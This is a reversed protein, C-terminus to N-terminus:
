RKKFFKNYWKLKQKSAEFLYTERKEVYKCPIKSFSNIGNEILKNYYDKYLQQIETYNEFTYRDYYKSMKNPETIRYSSFHYFYLPTSDAMKVNGDEFSVNREHLNWPAVNLGKNRLIKVKEFFIPVLNIWLQDVFLGENVKDFGLNLTRNEWWDLFGDKVSANRHVGIFGLNYLGYNLFLQETPLFKDIAIPSLVHPTILIDADLFYEELIELSNYIVIDPDIYSIITGETYEKFIYKFYSAKVSTNFEILNFKKWLSDFEIIGIDAVPIIKCNLFEDYNIKENFEDVLGIIFFYNPNHKLLSQGLTKAQALYNNSCLTFVIKM